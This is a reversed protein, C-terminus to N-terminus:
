TKELFDHTLRPTGQAGTPPTCAGRQEGVPVRPAPARLRLGLFVAHGSPIMWVANREGASVLGSWPAGLKRLGLVEHERFGKCFHLLAGWAPGHELDEWVGCVVGESGEM